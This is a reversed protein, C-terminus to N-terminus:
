EDGNNTLGEIDLTIEEIELTPTEPIRYEKGNICGHLNHQLYTLTLAGAQNIMKRYVENEPDVSLIKTADNIIQSTIKM